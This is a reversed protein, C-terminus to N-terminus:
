KLFWYVSYYEDVMENLPWMLFKQNLGHVWFALSPYQAPPPKLEWLSINSMINALGLECTENPINKQECQTSLFRGSQYSNEFHILLPNTSNSHRVHWTAAALATPGVLDCSLAVRSISSEIAPASIFCGPQDFSELSVFKQEEGERSDTPAHLPPALIFTRRTAESSGGARLPHLPSFPPPARLVRLEGGRGLHAVLGEMGFNEEIQAAKLGCLEKQAWAPVMQINGHFKSLLSGELDHAADGNRITRDAVDPVVDGAVGGIPLPILGALVLPGYLLAYLPPKNKDAENLRETRVRAPLSLQLTDGARWAWQVQLFTGPKLGPSVPVEDENLRMVAAGGEETWEPIRLSIRAQAGTALMLRAEELASFSIHVHYSSDSDLSPPTMQVSLRLGAEQWRLTSTEYQMIHLEPPGQTDAEGGQFYLGQALKAFAEILTGYCCWFSALPEGWGSLRWHQPGAKSVSYGLPLNYLMVGPISGRQTGIIGNLVARENFDAYSAAGTWSLLRTAVKMMNYQTCSEQHAGAWHAELGGRVTDAMKGAELWVEVHTSGGSVFTRTKNIINFFNIATHQLEAQSTLDFRQQLGVLVPLHTNGHMGSLLDQGLALPGFFCPREFLAALHLFKTLNTARFLTYLVDNMGGYEMNLSALHQALSKSQLVREVRSRFYEGMQTAMQLAKSNGAWEWQDLLGAMIKHVTYYPAWVPQQAEYKDFLETPFASLYGSDGLALQCQRLIDVVKNM